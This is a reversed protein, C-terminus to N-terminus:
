EAAEAERLIPNSLRIRLIILDRVTLGVNVTNKEYDPNVHRLDLGDDVWPVFDQSVPLTTKL